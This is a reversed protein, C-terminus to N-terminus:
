ISLLRRQKESKFSCVAQSYREQNQDPSTKSRVDNDVIIVNSNSEQWRVGPQGFPKDNTIFESFALINRCNHGHRPIEKFMSTAASSRAASEHQSANRHIPMDGSTPCGPLTDNNSSLAMPALPLCRAEMRRDSGPSCTRMCGRHM